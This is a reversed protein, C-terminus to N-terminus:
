IKLYEKLSDAIKKLKNQGETQYVRGSGDQWIIIDDIHTQEIVYVNKLVAPHNEREELTVAAVNLRAAKCIGTLEHGLYTVFGYAKVYEHYEPAFTMGIEKESEKIASEDVPGKSFFMPLQKMKLLWKNLIKLRRSVTKGYGDLFGGESEGM